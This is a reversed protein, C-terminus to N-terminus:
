LTSSEGKSTQIDDHAESSARESVKAAVTATLTRASAEHEPLEADSVAVVVTSDAAGASVASDDPSSCSNM